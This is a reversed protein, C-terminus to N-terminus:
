KTRWVMGTDEGTKRVTFERGTAKGIKSALTRVSSSKRYPFEFSQGVELEMFPYAFRNVPIPVDSSIVTVPIKKEAM